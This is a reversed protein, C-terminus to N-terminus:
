RRFPRASITPADITGLYHALKLSEIFSSLDDAMAMGFRAMLASAGAMSGSLSATHSLTAQRAEDSKGVKLIIVPKKLQFSLRALERWSDHDTIGEVHLGIATIREDKILHIAM